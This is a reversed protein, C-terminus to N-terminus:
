ANGEPPLFRSGWITPLKSDPADKSPQEAKAPAPTPRESYHTAAAAATGGIIRRLVDAPILIEKADPDAELGRRAAGILDDFDKIAPSPQKGLAQFIGDRIAPYDALVQRLEPAHYFEGKNLNHAIQNVNNHFRGWGGLMTSLLENEVPPIHQSRPGPDGKTLGKARLWAGSRLGADRANASIENFEDKTCRVVFQCGRQRKNSGGRKHKPHQDGGAPTGTEM